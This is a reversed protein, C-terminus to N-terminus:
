RKLYVGKQLRFRVHCSSHYLRSQFVRTEFRETAKSAVVPRLPRMCYRLTTVSGTYGQAKIEDYIVIVNTCGDEMRKQVYDKYPDIKKPQTTHRQYTQPSEEELWKRITKPDRGLDRAIHSIYMGRQQMDKIMFFGGNKVM